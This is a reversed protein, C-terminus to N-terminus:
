SKVKLKESEVKLKGSEVESKGVGSKRVKESEVEQGRV